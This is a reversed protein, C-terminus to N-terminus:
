DHRRSWIRHCGQVMSTCLTCIGGTEGAVIADDEEELCILCPHVPDADESKEGEASVPPPPTAAAGGGGGSAAAARVGGGGESVLAPDPGHTGLLAAKQKAQLEACKV